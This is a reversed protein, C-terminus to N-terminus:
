NEGSGNTKSEDLQGHEKTIARIQPVIKKILYEMDSMKEKHKKPVLHYEMVQLMRLNGSGGFVLDGVQFIKPSLMTRTDYGTVCSDAGWYITDDKKLAIICTM